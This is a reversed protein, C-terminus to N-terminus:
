AASMVRRASEELADLFADMDAETTRHNVIAARIVTKGGLITSSPAAVGREQLDIVIRKTLEDADPRVVHFLRHESHRACVAHLHNNAEASRGSIQRPRLHTRHMRRDKGRWLRPLHVLDQARSVARCTSVSIARGYKAPASGSPMRHLYTTPNYYTRRHAEADRVLLFGADYPVHAWKHFDFAVSAAREIGRVLPKLRPSLACLAGFAGDVHFWLGEAQCLDALASLDDMAGANVSGATGAVLFPKLGADRDAAIQKTLLDIRIAGRADVPIMRLFQSGVGAVEIAQRISGHAEASTYAVLQLGAQRLGEQRVKDGIAFNRAIVVASLNAASTGTVFIGSSGDPFGLMEAAWRVIQQEVAIAIHNRGGCNANLGAALMEAVMGVPTGAGHVWGLFLPHLNGTSYPMIFSKFDAIVDRLDQSALPLPQRFQEIVPGPAQQWVPRERITEIFEIMGGLADHAISRFDNWDDPDLDSSKM